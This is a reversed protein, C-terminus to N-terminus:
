SIARTPKQTIRHALYECLFTLAALPPAVIIPFAIGFGETFFCSVDAFTDEFRFHGYGPSIWDPVSIFGLLAM